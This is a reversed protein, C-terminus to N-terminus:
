VVTSLILKLFVGLNNNISTEKVILQSLIIFCLRIVGSRKFIKSNKHLLEIKVFKLSVCMKGINHWYNYICVWVIYPIIEGQLNNKRSTLQKIVLIFFNGQEGRAYYHLWRNQHQVLQMISLPISSRKLITKIYKQIKQNCFGMALVSYYSVQDCCTWTKMKRYLPILIYPSFIWVCVILSQSNAYSGALVMDLSSRQYSHYFLQIFYAVDHRWPFLCYPCKKREDWYLILPAAISSNSSLVM